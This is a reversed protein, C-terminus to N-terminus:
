KEEEPPELFPEEKVQGAEGQILITVKREAENLKKECFRVLEMGEEFLKLGDELGTNGSEMLKVIEELREMAKEFKIEEM